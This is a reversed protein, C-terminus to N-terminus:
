VWCGNEYIYQIKNAISKQSCRDLTNIWHPRMALMDGVEEGGRAKVFLEGTEHTSLISVDDYLDIVTAKFNSAM